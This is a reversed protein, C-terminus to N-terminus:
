EVQKTEGIKRAKKTLAFLVITYVVFLVFFIGLAILCNALSRASFNLLLLLPAVTLMAPFQSTIFIDSTATEYNPDIERLLIVGNSATGTLTGFNVLFIEHQIDTFCHKAMMRVYFFTVVTGVLSLVIILLAYKGVIDIDIAAVGAVIMLDFSFGSLRDMQYNNIYRKKIIKKNFLVNVVVKILTATIVGFIFNFGWAISNFLAVGTWDSVKALLWMILFALIYALAVFAIQVTMKDISESDEIEDQEEFDSVQRNLVFDKVTIQNKRKFIAIYSVGVVSAVIFGISAITLGFSGNGEFGSSALNTFNIDWTLANGPGQGFGLPLIIGADYFAEAGLWFFILSCILGAVAQLMYTGGTILGNRIAGFKESGKKNKSITKLSMAIFGFALSHYTVIQMHREEVLSYNFVKKSLINVLLLLLGGILASPILAKRLFPISRRLGNGILLFVLVIMIELIVKWVEGYQTLDFSWM